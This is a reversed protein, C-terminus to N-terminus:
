RMWGMRGRVIRNGQRWGINQNNTLALVGSDAPIIQRQRYRARLRSLTSTLAAVTEDTLARGYRPNLRAALSTIFYDDFEQPFPFEEDAANTLESLRVWGGLDGRYFWSRNLGDTNLLLTAAGEITRGNGDLTLNRTALRNGPDVIAVRAGDAPDPPLYLTQAATHQAVVRVNPLLYSWDNVTWTHAIADVMGDQGVPWDFLPDGVENGYVGALIRNLLTLAEASQDSDPEVGKAIMNSERYADKIIAPTLTM